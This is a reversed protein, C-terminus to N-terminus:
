SWILPRTVKLYANEMEMNHGHSIALVKRYQKNNKLEKVRGQSQVKYTRLAREKLNMIVGM